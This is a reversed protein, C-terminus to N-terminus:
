PHLNFNNRTVDTHRIGISCHNEILTGRLRFSENVGDLTRGTALLVALVVASIELSCSNM